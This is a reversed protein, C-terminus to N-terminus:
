GKKYKIKIGPRKMGLAVDITLWMGEFSPKDLQYLAGKPNDKLVIQYCRPLEILHIYKGIDENSLRFQIFRKQLESQVTQNLTFRSHYEDGQWWERPEKSILTYKCNNEFIDVSIINELRGNRWSAIGEDVLHDLGMELSRDTFNKIWGKYENDM